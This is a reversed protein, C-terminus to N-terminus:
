ILNFMKSRALMCAGVVGANLGLKSTKITTDKGVLNLSYKRIGSKIPLMIYDGALSISGGIIVLEPNFINILGAIYKGLTYGVEEVIEISLLDGKSTANIIDDLTIENGNALIKQLISSNGEQIKQLVKNHIYYGSAQTELCGKKGCHCMIENDFVNMHGFEGSFGSKGYYLVGDTIVGIGLGWSINVFVVNKESGVVGSMYEGYAMARSDNDITAIIGLKEHLIESLSQEHFFYRTYSLGTHSNVRGSINAGINLVKDRSVPLKDLFNSIVNCLVDIGKYSNSEMFPIGVESCVIDGNLNILALSISFDKIDVGIFYGSDPNLGYKNPRRGGATEQKGFDVVFGDDMLESVLKTVTPISLEMERGLDALTNEGNLMYYRIINIKLTANKTGSELEQVLTHKM